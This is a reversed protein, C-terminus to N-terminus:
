HYHLSTKGQFLIKYYQGFLEMIKPIYGNPWRNGQSDWCKYKNEHLLFLFDPTPFSLHVHASLFYGVWLILYETFLAADMPWSKQNIFAIIKLFICVAGCNGYSQKDLVSVFRLHRCFAKAM